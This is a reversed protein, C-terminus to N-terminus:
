PILHGESLGEPLHVPGKGRLADLVTDGKVGMEPGGDCMAARPRAPNDGDVSRCVGDRSRGGGQASLSDSSPTRFRGLFHHLGDM